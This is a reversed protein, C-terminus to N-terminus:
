IATVTSASVWYFTGLSPIWKWTWFANSMGVTFFFGTQMCYILLQIIM